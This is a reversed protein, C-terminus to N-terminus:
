ATHGGDERARREKEREIQRDHATPKDPWHFYTVSGDPHRIGLVKCYMTCRCNYVTEPPASPDAPYRLEHGIGDIFPEDLEREQGDTNMHWDRTHADPCAVWVKHVILGQKALEEYRDLRGLNQAGTVMTRAMRIAASRNVGTIHRIRNAIGWIDEGQLIAALVANEIQRMNWSTDKPANIEKRPLDALAASQLIPFRIDPPGDVPQNYNVLYVEPMVGNVYDIALRNVDLLALATRAVLQHYEASRAHYEREAQQYRRLAEAKEDAPAQQYARWLDGLAGEAAKLYKDWEAAIHRQADEYMGRIVAVVEELYDDTWEQAKDRPRPTQPVPRMKPLQQAM